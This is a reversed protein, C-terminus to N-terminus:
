YSDTRYAQKDDLYMNICKKEWEINNEECM